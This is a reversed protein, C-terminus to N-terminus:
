NARCNQYLILITPHIWFGSLDKKEDAQEENKKMKKKLTQKWGSAEFVDMKKLIVFHPCGVSNVEEKSIQRIIGPESILIVTECLPFSLSLRYFSSFTFPRM